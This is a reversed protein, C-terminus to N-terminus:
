ISFSWHSFGSQLMLKSQGPGIGFIIELWSLQLLINLGLTPHIIRKVFSLNTTQNDIDALAILDILIM